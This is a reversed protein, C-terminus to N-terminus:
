NTTRTQIQQTKKLVSQGLKELLSRLEEDECPGLNEDLERRLKQIKETALPVQSLKQRKLFDLRDEIGSNQNNSNGAVHVFRIQNIWSNGFLYNIREILLEKQYHLIAADASSAAIELTAQPKEQSSKPKRYLIKVPQTKGAMEEGVIEVWQTLIRGLAVFKRSCTQATIKAIGSSLPTLDYM